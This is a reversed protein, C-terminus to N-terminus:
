IFPPNAPNDQAGAEKSEELSPSSQSFLSTRHTLLQSKETFDLKNLFPRSPAFIVPMASNIMNDLQM